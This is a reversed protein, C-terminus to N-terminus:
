PTPTAAPATWLIHTRLQDIMDKLDAESDSMSTITIGLASGNIAVLQQSQLMTARPIKTRLAIFTHTPTSLTVPDDHLDVNPVQSKSDEMLAAKMETPDKRYLKAEVSVLINSGDPRLMGFEINNDAAKLANLRTPGMGRWGDLCKIELGFTADKYDCNAGQAQPQFSGTSDNPKNKHLSAAREALSRTDRTPTPQPQQAFLLSSAFLFAVLFLRTM